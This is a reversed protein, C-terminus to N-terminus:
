GEAQGGTILTHLTLNHGSAKLFEAVNNESIYAALPVFTSAGSDIVAFAEDPLQILKEIMTDFLRSNISDGEMIEIKTAKLSAYATLTANVPDADFCGVLQDRDLLYQSLLSATFSKGVGGKGQLIMNIAAM